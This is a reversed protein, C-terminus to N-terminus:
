RKHFSSQPATTDTSIAMTYPTRSAPIVGPINAVRSAMLRVIVPAAFESRITEGCNVNEPQAFGEAAILPVVTLRGCFGSEAIGVGHFIVNEVRILAPSSKSTVIVDSFPESWHDPKVTVHTSFGGVPDCVLETPVTVFLPDFIENRTSPDVVILQGTPVHVISIQDDFPAPLRLSIALPVICTSDDFTVTGDHAYGNDNLEPV